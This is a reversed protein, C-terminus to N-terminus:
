VDFIGGGAEPVQRGVPGNFIGGAGRHFRQVTLTRRKRDYRGDGLEEVLQAAAVERENQVTIVGHEQAVSWLHAADARAVVDDEDGRLWEGTDPEVASPPQKGARLRSVCYVNVAISCLLVLLTFLQM